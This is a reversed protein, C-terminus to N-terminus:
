RKIGFYGGIGKGKDCIIIERGKKSLKVDGLKITAVKDENELHIYYNSSLVVILKM